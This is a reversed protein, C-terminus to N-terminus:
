RNVCVCSTCNRLDPQVKSDSSSSRFSRVGLTAATSFGSENDWLRSCADTHTLTKGSSAITCGHSFFVPNSQCEEKLHVRSFLRFTFDNPLDKGIFILSTQPHSTQAESANIKELYATVWEMNKNNVEPDNNTTSGCSRSASNGNM